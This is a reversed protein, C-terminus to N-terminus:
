QMLGIRCVAGRAGASFAVGSMTASQRKQHMATRAQPPEGACGRGQGVVRGTRWDYISVSHYNDMAVVALLAGDPSFGLACVGRASKPLELRRLEPECAPSGVRSDWICVYPGHDLATVQGTAFLSHAPFARGDVTIPSPCPALARIDDDHALFFHQAHGAGAAADAASDPPPTYVVAIGATYYVAQVRADANRVLHQLDRREQFHLVHANPPHSLVLCGMCEPM